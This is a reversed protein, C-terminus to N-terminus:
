KGCQKGTDGNDFGTDGNDFAAFATNIEAAVEFMASDRDPISNIKGEAVANKLEDISGLVGEPDAKKSQERRQLELAIMQYEQSNSQGDAALTGLIAKLMEDSKGQIDKKLKDYRNMQEKTLESM